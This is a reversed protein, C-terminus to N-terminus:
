DKKNSPFQPNKAGDNKIFIDHAVLCGYVLICVVLVAKIFGEVVSVIAAIPYVAIVEDSVILANLSDCIGSDIEYLFGLRMLLYAGIFFLLKQCRKSM